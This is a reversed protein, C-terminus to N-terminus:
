DGEGLKIHTVDALSQDWTPDVDVWKGVWVKAWQHFYFGPRDGDMYILGAVERAPLGAARALAIFLVSHETCDGELSNLVELANTLRASFTTQVNDNVWSSLKEVIKMSNTEDGVIERAKAILKPDDSQIFRTPKQWEAVSPETIPIQAPTFGALSIARGTFEFADGKQTFFQREDNFLHASTLPGKVILRLSERTRANLIPEDLYAANSVLVDNVYNVDQAAEKSELRMTIMSAVVDELLAGHETVISVTDLGTFEDHTAIRFVKTPVGELTRTEVAIIECVGRTEASLMPEFFTYSIKDGVKADPNALMSQKFADRLNEKPAELTEEKRTGGITSTMKMTGGDVKGEFRSNGTSDKVEQVFGLLSGDAAYTRKSFTQLDQPIANMMLKFRADEVVSITGDNEVSVANMLFGSKQGNLYLGYWDEGTLKSVDIPQALALRPLLLFTAAILARNM